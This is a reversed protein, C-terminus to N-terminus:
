TDLLRCTVPRWNAAKSLIRSSDLYRLGMREHIISDLSHLFENRHIRLLLATSSSVRVSFTEPSHFKVSNLGLWTGRSFKVSPRPSCEGCQIIYAYESYRGLMTVPKGHQIEVVDFLESCREAIRRNFATVPLGSAWLITDTIEDKPIPDLEPTSSNAAFNVRLITNTRM